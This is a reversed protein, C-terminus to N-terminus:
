GHSGKEPLVIDLLHVHRSIVQHAGSRILLAEHEPNGAPNYGIANYGAERAQRMDCPSDGVYYCRDRSKGSLKAIRILAETKQETFMATVFLDAIGERNLIHMVREALNASVIHVPVELLNLERLTDIFGEYMPPDYELSNHVAWLDESSLTVGMQRYRQEFASCLLPRLDAESFPPLEQCARVANVRALMDLMSKVMVEDNDYVVVFDFEPSLQM